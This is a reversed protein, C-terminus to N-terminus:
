HLETQQICEMPINIHKPEMSIDLDIHHQLDHDTVIDQQDNMQQDTTENDNLPAKNKLITHFLPVNIEEVSPLTRHPQGEEFIVDCSVFVHQFASDQVKYNGGGSAYRLFRCEVTRPDLKSGGTVQVSGITPIKAWCRASFIHLHSVDQRKGTLSELPIKGPHCCSPILNCTDILYSAAEAWYSHGLGSDRLLTCIDDM